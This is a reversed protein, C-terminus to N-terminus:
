KEVENLFTEIDGRTTYYEDFVKEHGLKVMVGAYSRRGKVMWNYITRRTRKVGTLKFLVIPVDRLKIRAKRM